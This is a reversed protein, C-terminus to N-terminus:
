ALATAIANRLATVRADLATLDVASGASYYHIQANVTSAAGAYPSTSFVNYNAGLAGTGSTSTITGSQGGRIFNFSGSANRSIGLTGIQTTSGFSLLTAANLRARSATTNAYLLTRYTSGGCIYRGAAINGYDSLGVSMHCNNQEDLSPTRNTTLYKDGGNSRLGLTRSYDGAVFNFNTPAAGKLPVLAGALTRAGMLLCSAEIAQFNSVGANPSPDAKCGVVFANIADKVGAELPQGDAAEVNAIYASADPDLDSEDGAM